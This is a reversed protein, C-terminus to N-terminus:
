PQGTASARTSLIQNAVGMDMSIDGSSNVNAGGAILGAKGLRAVLMTNQKQLEGVQDHLIDNQRRALDREAIARELELALAARDEKEARRRRRDEARRNEQERRDEIKKLERRYKEEQRALEREHRERAKGQAAADREREVQRKADATARWRAMKEDLRRQREELKRLEKDRRANSFTAATVNTKTTSSSTGNLTSSSDSVTSRVDVSRTGEAVLDTAELPPEQASQYSSISSADDDTAIVSLAPAPTDLENVATGGSGRFPLAPIHSSVVSGAASIAGAIVGYFGSPSTEEPQSQLVEEKVTSVANDSDRSRDMSQREKEAAVVAEEKFDDDESSAFDEPEKSTIWKLFRGADSVIGGPTGKEVMFRPVNGGPDSRTIMIWEIMTMAEDDLKAGEGERGGIANGNKDALTLKAVSPSMADRGLNDTRKALMARAGNDHGLDISSRTRRLPREMPIERIMEVSEYQGRIFGQRNPCEPHICPKSVVMFQRYPPKEDNNETYHGPSASSLMLTIFDRPATPGPFQASLQYVTHRTLWHVGGRLVDHLWRGEMKGVGPVVRNEVRREAGIGRVNGGGQQGHAKLTEAFERELGLQWKDFTLGHHVSRRAFWSGKGDRAALRYVAIGLPNDKAPVKVEKWERRLLLQQQLQEASLGSGPQM